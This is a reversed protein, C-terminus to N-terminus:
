GQRLYEAKKLASTQECLFLLLDPAGIDWVITLLLM